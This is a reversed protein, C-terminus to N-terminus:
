RGSPWGALDRFGGDETTPAAPGRGPAYESGCRSARAAPAMLRGGSAITAGVAASGNRGGVDEKEESTHRIGGTVKWADSFAFTGQAFAAKSELTRQPQIFSMAWATDTPLTPTVVIPGRGLVSAPQRSIDIDFRIANDEEIM